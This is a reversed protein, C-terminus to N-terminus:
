RGAQPAFFGLKRGLAVAPKTVTRSIELWMGVAQMAPVAGVVAGLLIVALSLTGSGALVYLILALTWAGGVIVGGRCEMRIFENLREPAKAALTKFEALDAENAAPLDAATLGQIDKALTVWEHASMAQPVKRYTEALAPKGDPTSSPALKKGDLWAGYIKGDGTRALRLTRRDPLRIDTGRGQVAWGMARLTAEGIKVGDVSVTMVPNVIGDYLIDLRNPGGPELAYWRREIESEQLASTVRSFSSRRADGGANTV